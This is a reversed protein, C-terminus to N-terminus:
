YSLLDRWFSSCIIIIFVTRTFEGSQRSSYFNKGFFIQWRLKFKVFRFSKNTELLILSAICWIIFSFNRNRKERCCLLIQRMFLQVLTSSCILITWGLCGDTSLQRDLFKDSLHSKRTSVWLEELGNLIEMFGNVAELYSYLWSGSHFFRSLDYVSVALWSLSLFRSRIKKKERSQREEGYRERENM